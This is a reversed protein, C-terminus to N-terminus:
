MYWVFEKYLSSKLMRAQVPDAAASPPRIVFILIESFDTGWYM